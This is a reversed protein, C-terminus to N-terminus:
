WPILCPGMPGQPCYGPPRPPTGPENGGPQTPNLVGGALATSSSVSAVMVITFIITLFRKKM